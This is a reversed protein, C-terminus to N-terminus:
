KEKRKNSCEECIHHNNMITYSLAIYESVKFEKNCISCKVIVNDDDKKSM